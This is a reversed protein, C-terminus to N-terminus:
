SGRDKVSKTNFENLINGKVFFSFASWYKAPCFEELPQDCCIHENNREVKLAFPESVIM